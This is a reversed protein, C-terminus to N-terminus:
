KVGSRLEQIHLARVKTTGAVLTPDTYNITSLGLATRAATLATRLEQVHAAKV